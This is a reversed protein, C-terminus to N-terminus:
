DRDDRSKLGLETEQCDFRQSLVRSHHEGRPYNGIAAVSDLRDNRQAEGRRSIEPQCSERREIPRDWCNVISKLRRGDGFM